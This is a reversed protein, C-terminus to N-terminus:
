KYSILSTPWLSNSYIFNSVTNKDPSLVADIDELCRSEDSSLEIDSEGRNSEVTM